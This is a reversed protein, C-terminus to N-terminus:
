EGEPENMQNFKPSSCIEHGERNGIPVHYGVSSKFFFELKKRKLKWVQPASSVRVRPRGSQWDPRSLWSFKKLIFFSLSKVSSSGYKRPRRSEFERGERNGIPV